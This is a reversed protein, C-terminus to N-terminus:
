MYRRVKEGISGRLQSVKSDTWGMKRAIASTSITKPRGNKGTLFEFVIQENPSLEYPYILQLVERVRPTEDVFPDQQSVSAVLDKRMEQQLKTVSRGTVKRLKRESMNMKDAIEQATPSRGLTDVLESVARDYDGIDQAREETIRSFNQNSIIYRRAGRLQYNLFTKIQAGKSPDYSRLGKIVHKTLVGEIADKPIPVHGVYKRATQAIIPRLSKLLPEMDEPKEGNEKWTKWLALENQALQRRAEVREAAQKELEDAKDKLSSSM